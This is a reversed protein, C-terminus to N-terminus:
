ILDMISFDDTLVPMINSKSEAMPNKSQIQKAIRTLVYNYKYMIVVGKPDKRNFVKVSTGILFEISIQKTIDYLIIKWDEGSEFKMLPNRKIAMMLCKYAANFATHGSCRGFDGTIETGNASVFKIIKYFKIKIM